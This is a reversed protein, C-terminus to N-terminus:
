HLYYRMLNHNILNIYRFLWLGITVSGYNYDFWRDILPLTWFYKVEMRHRLSLCRSNAAKRGKAAHILLWGWSNRWLVPRLQADCLPWLGDAYHRERLNAFCGQRQRWTVDCQGASSALLFWRCLLTTVLKLICYVSIKTIISTIIEIIVSILSLKWM